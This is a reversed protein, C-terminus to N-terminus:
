KNRGGFSRQRGRFTNLAEILDAEEFDPFLKNPFYFETYALQWLLFNSVRLEGSTRILLDPNPFETVNTLLQQEFASENIDEARLIGHEVKSAIKKTAEIIDYRGGYSLAMLFHMGTNNRTFNEVSSITSQVSQPLRSKDGIVSFRLDQGMTQEKIISQILGKYHAMLFDVEDKPRNWNETSFVYVTLVKVGFKSCNMILQKLKQVGEYHAHEIPLGRNKAWRGHGDMILAVHKPILEPRLDGPLQIAIKQDDTEVNAILNSAAALRSKSIPSAATSFCAFINPRDGNNFKNQPSCLKLSSSITKENNRHISSSNLTTNITFPSTTPLRLCIQM